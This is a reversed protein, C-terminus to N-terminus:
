AKPTPLVDLVALWTFLLPPVCGGGFYVLTFCCIPPILYLSKLFGEMGNLLFVSKYYMSTCRLLLLCYVM